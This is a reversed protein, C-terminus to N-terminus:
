LAVLPSVRRYIGPGVGKVSLIEDIERFGGRQTRERVISRAIKPGIGPLAVLGELTERNLSIPIGLTIKYFGTMETEKIRVGAKQGVRRVDVKTGSRYLIDKSVPVHEVECRFGGARALLDHITPLRCFGYVGPRRIDGLVQIYVKRDCLIGDPVDHRCIGKVVALALVVMVLLLLGGTCDSIEKKTMM